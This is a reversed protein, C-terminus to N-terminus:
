ARPASQAQNQLQYQLRIIGRMSSTDFVENFANQFEANDTDINKIDEKWSM